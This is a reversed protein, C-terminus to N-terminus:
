NERVNNSIVLTGLNLLSGSGKKALYAESYEFERTDFLWELRDPRDYEPYKDRFKEFIKERYIQM